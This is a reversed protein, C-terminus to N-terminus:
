ENKTGKLRNLYKKLEQTSFQYFWGADKGKTLKLIRGILRSNDPGSLTVTATFYHCDKSYSEMSSIM